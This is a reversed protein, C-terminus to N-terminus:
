QVRNGNNDTNLGMIMLIEFASMTPLRNAFTIASERNLFGFAEIENDISFETPKRILSYLRVVHSIVEPYTNQIIILVAPGQGNESICIEHVEMNDADELGELNLEVEEKLM